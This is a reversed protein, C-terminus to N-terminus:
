RCRKKKGDRQDESDSVDMVEVLEGQSMRMGWKERGQYTRHNLESKGCDKTPVRVEDIEPCATDISHNEAM